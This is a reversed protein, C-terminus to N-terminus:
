RQLKRLKVGLRYFGEFDAPISLRIAYIGPASPSGLKKDHDEYKASFKYALKGQGGTQDTYFSSDFSYAAITKVIDTTDFPGAIQFKMNLNKRTTLLISLTDPPVLRVLKFDQRDELGINNNYDMAGETVLSDTMDSGDIWTSPTAFLSDFARFNSDIFDKDVWSYPLFSEEIRPQGNGHADRLGSFVVTFPSNVNFYNSGYLRNKGFILLRTPSQFRHDIGEAPTFDLALASTDIKESFDVTVTDTVGFRYKGQSQPLNIMHDPPTKDSPSEASNCGYLSLVVLGTFIAASLRKWNAAIMGM